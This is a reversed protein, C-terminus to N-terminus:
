AGEGEMEEEHGEGLFKEEAAIDLSAEVLDEVVAEGEQADLHSLGEEEGGDEEGKAVADDDDAPPM